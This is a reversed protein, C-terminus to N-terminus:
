DAEAILNARTVQGWNPFLLQPLFMVNHTLVQLPAPAAAAPAIPALLGTATLALALLLSLPRTMLM